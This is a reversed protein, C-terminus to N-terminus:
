LLLYTHIIHICVFYNKWGNEKARAIEQAIEEEEAKFLAMVVEGWTLEEGGKLRLKLTEYLLHESPHKLRIM